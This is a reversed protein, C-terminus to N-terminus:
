RNPIPIVELTRGGPGRVVFHRTAYAEAVTMPPTSGALRGVNIPPDAITALADIVRKDATVFGVRGGPAASFLADAV